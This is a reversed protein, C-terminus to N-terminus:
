LMGVFNLLVAILVLLAIIVIIARVLGSYQGPPILSVIYYVTVCALVIIFLYVLLVLISPM